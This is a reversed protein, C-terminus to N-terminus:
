RSFLSKLKNTCRPYKKLVIVLKKMKDFDESTADAVLVTLLDVLEITGKNKVVNYALQVASPTTYIVEVFCHLLQEDPFVSKSEEFLLFKDAGELMATIIGEGTLWYVPYKVNRYEKVGAKWILKKKELSRFATHTPKYSKSLANGTENITLPKSKALFLVILKQLTPLSDRKIKLKSM